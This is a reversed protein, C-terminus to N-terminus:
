RDHDKRRPLPLKVPNRKVHRKALSIEAMVRATLIVVSTIVISILLPYFVTWDVGFLKWGFPEWHEQMVTFNGLWVPFLMLRSAIKANRNPIGDRHFIVEVYSFYWLALDVAVSLGIGIWEQGPAEFRVMMLLFHPFSTLFVAFMLVVGIWFLM